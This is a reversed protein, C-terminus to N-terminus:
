KQKSQQAVYRTAASKLQKSSSKEQLQEVHKTLDADQSLTNPDAFHTLANISTARLNDDEDDDLVIRKAQEQFEDPALSQLAIASINRVKSTESKDNLIDALMAKSGPDGALLRVAEQKAKASPPKKVIDRLIPYYETHVDYGLLQIAKAPPVLAKSPDELGELLRRQAYEDKEQALVELAQERLTTDEDDIIERLAALYEPRKPNFIAVRFSSQKLIRLAAQRVIAPESKDKLLGIAMDILEHSNSIEIGMSQITAARLEADEGKDQIISVADPVADSDTMAAASQLAAQREKTSKSKDAFSRYDKRKQEAQDLQKAYQERYKSIDM